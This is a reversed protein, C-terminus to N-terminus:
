LFENASKLYKVLFPIPKYTSAFESVNERLKAFLHRVLLDIFQQLTNLNARSRARSKPPEIRESVEEGESISIDVVFTEGAHNETLLDGKPDCIYVKNM